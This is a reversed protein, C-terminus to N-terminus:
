SLVPDPIIPFMEPTMSPARNVHFNRNWADTSVRRQIVPPLVPGGCHQYSVHPDVSPVAATAVAPRGNRYCCCCSMVISPKASYGAPVSPPNSLPFTLSRQPTSWCTTLSSQGLSAQFISIKTLLVGCCRGPEKPSHLNCDVGLRACTRFCSRECNSPLSTLNIDTFGILKDRFVRSDMRCTVMGASVFM